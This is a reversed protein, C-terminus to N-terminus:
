SLLRRARSRARSLRKEVANTSIGLVDAIDSIESGDIYRRRLVDADTPDLRDLLREVDLRADVHTVEDTGELIGFADESEDLLDDISVPDRRSEDRYRSLLKKSAIRLIWPVVPLSPDYEDAKECATLVAESLIEEAVHALSTGHPLIYKGNGIARGVIAAARDALDAYEADTISLVPRADTQSATDAPTDHM